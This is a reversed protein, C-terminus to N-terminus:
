GHYKSGLPLIFMGPCEQPVNNYPTPVPPAVSPICIVQGAQLYNPNIGPNTQFISEISVNFRAAVSYLTDGPQVIYASTGTVCQSYMLEM